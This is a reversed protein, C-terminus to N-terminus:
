SRPRLRVDRRDRQAPLLLLTWGGTAGRIQGDLWMKLDGQFFLREFGPGLKAAAFLGAPVLCAMALLRARGGIRISAQAPLMQWVYAGVVFTAPVALFALLVAPVVREVIPALVIAALFGLVVSPLSAMMEIAPKM